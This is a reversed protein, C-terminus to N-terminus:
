REGDPWGVGVWRERNELSGLWQCSSYIDYRRVAPDSEDSRSFERVQWLIADADPFSDSDSDLESEYLRKLVADDKMGSAFLRVLLSSSPGEALWASPKEGTAKIELRLRISDPIGFNRPFARQLLVIADFIGAQKGVAAFQEWPRDDHLDDVENQRAGRSMTQGFVVELVLEGAEQEELDQLVMTAMEAVDEDGVVDDFDVLELVKRLRAPPWSGPLEHVEAWEEISLLFKRESM